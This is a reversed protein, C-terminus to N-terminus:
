PTITASQDRYGWADNLAGRVGAQLKRVNFTTSSNLGPGVVGKAMPQGKFPGAALAAGGSDQYDAMLFGNLNFAKAGPKEVGQLMLWNAGYAQDIGPLLLMLAGVFLWVMNFAAAFNGKLAM